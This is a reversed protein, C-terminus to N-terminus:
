RKSKSIVFFHVYRIRQLKNENNTANTFRETESFKLDIEM